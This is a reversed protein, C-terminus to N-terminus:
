RKIHMTETTVAKAMRMKIRRYIVYFFTNYVVSEGKVIIEDNRKKKVLKIIIKDTSGESSKICVIM